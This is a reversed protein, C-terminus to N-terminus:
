KQKEEEVKNHIDMDIDDINKNKTKKPKTSQYGLGGKDVIVM